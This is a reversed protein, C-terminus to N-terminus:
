KAEGRNINLHKPFEESQLLRADLLTKLQLGKVQIVLNARHHLGLARKLEGPLYEHKHSLPLFVQGLSQASKRDVLM